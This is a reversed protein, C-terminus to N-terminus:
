SSLDDIEELKIGLIQGKRINLQVNGTKNDFLFQSLRRQARAGKVDADLNKVNNNPQKNIPQALTKSKM